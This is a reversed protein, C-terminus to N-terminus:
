ATGQSQSEAAAWHGDLLCMTGAQAVWGGKHTSLTTGTSVDIVTATLTTGSLGTAVVVQMPLSLSPQLSLRPRVHVQAAAMAAHSPSPLAAARVCPEEQLRQATM